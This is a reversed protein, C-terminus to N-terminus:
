AGVLRMAAALRDRREQAEIKKMFPVCDWCAPGGCHPGACMTCWGRQRGSGPEATWHKGCHTCQLTDKTITARGPEVITMVGAARGMRYSSM